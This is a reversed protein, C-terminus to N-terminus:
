KVIRKSEFDMGNLKELLKQAGSLDYYGYDDYRDVSNNGVHAPRVPWWIFLARREVEYRVMGRYNIEVIRRKTTM